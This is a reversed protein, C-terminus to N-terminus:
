IVAENGAPTPNQVIAPQVGDIALWHALLTFLVAILVLLRFVMVTPIRGTYVIDLPVSPLAGYIIDDLDVEHDEV